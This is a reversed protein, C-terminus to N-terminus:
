VHFLATINLIMRSSYFFSTPIKIQSCFVKKNLLSSPQPCQFTIIPQTIKSSIYDLFQLTFYQMFHTKHVHSRTTNQSSTLEDQPTINGTQRQATANTQGQTFPQETLVSLGAQTQGAPIHLSGFRRAGGKQGRVGVGLHVQQVQIYARHPRHEVSGLLDLGPIVSRM